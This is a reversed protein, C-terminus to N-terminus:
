GSSASRQLGTMALTQVSRALERVDERLNKFEVGIQQKLSELESEIPIIKDSKAAHLDLSAEIKTLDRQVQSVSANVNATWTARTWLLGAANIVFLLLSFAMELNVTVTM